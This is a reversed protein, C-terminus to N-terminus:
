RLRTRNFPLECWWSWSRGGIRMVAVPFELMFCANRSRASLRAMAIARGAQRPLSGAGAASALAVAESSVPPEALPSKPGGCPWGTSAMRVEGGFTGGGVPRVAGALTITESSTTSFSM